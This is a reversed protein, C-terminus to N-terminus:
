SASLLHLLIAADAVTIKQDGNRDQLDSGPRKGILHQLIRVVDSTDAAELIVYSSCDCAAFTLAGPTYVAEMKTLTGDAAIGFVRCAEGNMNGPVPLTLQMKSSLSLEAGEKELRINYAVANGKLYGAPICVSEEPTTKEAALLATADVTCPAATLTVQDDTLVVEAEIAVIEFGYRQQQNSGNCALQLTVADGPITVTQGMLDYDTYQGFLNGEADYISLIDDTSFRTQEQFTLTIRTAGPAAYSWTGPEEENYPHATRLEPLGCASCAGDEYTHEQKDLYTIYSQGCRSCCGEETGAESCTSATAVPATGPTHGIAALRFTYENQCVSCQYRTCGEETCTAAKEELLTLSGFHLTAQTLSDNGTGLTLGAFQEETGPYLVHEPACASFADAGVTQLGAPLVLASLERCHYFARAGISTVNEPIVLQTLRICASFADEGIATLSEPLSIQELGPCDEFAGDAIVTTDPDVTILSGLPMWGKYGYFIHELYVPGDKLSNYWATGDFAGAGIHTVTEPVNIKALASCGSFTDGPISTVSKSISVETLASCGRFAIAAIETISNPMVYTGSKTRDCYILRTMDATYIAGDAAQYAASDTDFVLSLAAYEAGSLTDLDTVTAPVQYTQGKAPPYYVLKTVAKNYVAGGVSAFYPNEDSIHIASLKEAHAFMGPSLTSLGSGATVTELAPLDGLDSVTIRTLSDPLILQQVTAAADGLSQLGVVALGDIQAPLEIVADQKTCGTICLGDEQELYSFYLSDPLSEVVTATYTVTQGMITATVTNAGLEWPNPASQDDQYAVEVGCYTVAGADNSELTTGAEDNLLVSYHPVTDYHYYTVKNGLSDYVTNQHGNTGEVVALDSIQVEQVPNKLVTVEATGSYSMITAKVTQTGVQWDSDSSQDLSLRKWADNYTVGGEGELVTGDNLTVTVHPSCSYVFYPITYGQTEESYKYNWYGNCNEIVTIPEVVISKVVTSAAHAPSVPRLISLLLCLALFGATRKKFKM